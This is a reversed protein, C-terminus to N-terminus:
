ILKHWNDVSVELALNAKAAPPNLELNEVLSTIQKHLSELSSDNEIIADLPYGAWSRESAHIKMDVLKQLSERDGNNALIATLFWEPDAGRKIRVIIGGARRVSLIENPFRVDTIVTDTQMDRLRSELCAIWIDDHFAGRCVETGWHQLVWRPTLHPINLRDAWWQDVQERWERAETSRGELLQRDWGFVVSVVDKLTSAFSDRRFGYEDCLYDAVTDKGSNILGCIAILKRM